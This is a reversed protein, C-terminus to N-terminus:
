IRSAPGSEARRRGRSCPTAVHGAAPQLLLSVGRDPEAAAWVEGGHRRVIRRASALGLGPAISGCVSHLRQFVGFPRKAFRMEFGAGNDSVTFPAAGHDGEAADRLDHAVTTGFSEDTGM